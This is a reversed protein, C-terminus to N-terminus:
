GLGLQGITSNMIAMRVKRLLASLNVLIAQHHAKGLDQGHELSIRILHTQMLHLKTGNNKINQAVLFVM